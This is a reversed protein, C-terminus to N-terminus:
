LGMDEDIDDGPAEPGVVPKKLDKEFDSVGKNPDVQDAARPPKKTSEPATAAADAAPTETKKGDSLQKARSGGSAFKNTIDEIALDHREAIEGLASTAEGIALKVRDEKSMQSTDPGFFEKSLYSASTGFIVVIHVIVTILIIGFLGRGQFGKMLSDPSTADGTAKMGEGSRERPRRSTDDETSAGDDSAARCAKCRVSKGRHRAYLKLKKGCDSCQGIFSDNDDTMAEDVM